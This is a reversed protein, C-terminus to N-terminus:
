ADRRDKTWHLQWRGTRQSYGTPKSVVGLEKRARKLSAESIGNERARKKIEKTAVPFESATLEAELFEMAEALASDDKPENTAGLVDSATVDCEEGLVVCSTSIEGVEPEGPLERGEVRCALTRQEPGVNCKAHVLVRRPGGGEASPDRGLLLVSRAAAGFGISGSTRTLADKSLGKNLHMTPAVAAGSDEALQALPAVARRVDQDRHADLKGDLYAVLPDVVILAPNHSATAEALAQIDRPFTLLDPAGSEEVEVFHVRSLDAGAAMLRPVVVPALMDEATALVVSRPEGHLDGPLTGRTIEAALRNTLQSKGLGPSGVLLSVAGSPIRGDWVWRVHEPRVDAATITRVTRRDNAVARLEAVTAGTM